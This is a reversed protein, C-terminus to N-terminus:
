VLFVLDLFVHQKSSFKWNGGFFAAAKIAQNGFAWCRNVSMKMIIDCDFPEDSLLAIRVNCYFSTLYACPFGCLRLKASNDEPLKMVTTQHINEPRHAASANDSSYLWWWHLFLKCPTCFFFQFYTLNLKCPMCIAFHNLKQCSYLSM